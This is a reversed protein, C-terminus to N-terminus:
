VGPRRAPSPAERVSWKLTEQNFLSATRPNRFGSRTCCDPQGSIVQSAKRLTSVPGMADRNSPLWFGSAAQGGQTARQHHNQCVAHDTSQAPTLSGGPPDSKIGPKTELPNQSTRPLRYSWADLYHGRLKVRGKGEPAQETGRYNSRETEATHEPGCGAGSAPSM